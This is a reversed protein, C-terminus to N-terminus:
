DKQKWFGALLQVVDLEDWGRQQVEKKSTPLWLNIDTKNEV